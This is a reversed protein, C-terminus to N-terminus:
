RMGQGKSVDALHYEEKGNMQREDNSWTTAHKRPGEADINLFCQRKICYVIFYIFLFCKSNM